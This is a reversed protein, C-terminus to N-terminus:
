RRSVGAAVAEVDVRDGQAAALIQEIRCSEAARDPRWRKFRAPHRFRDGDVQDFGVELVRDPRIPVWDHEMDPTWRAASGKLRGLPSPGILFGNRWPHRGLPIALAGLELALSRREATPLQTVVGVHRLEGAGDYLGLLLSSVSGDPLPRWGAVVCDATRDLKVKIMSRRGPEYRLEDSKAVVGDIGSGAAALWRGAAAPDRTTETARL